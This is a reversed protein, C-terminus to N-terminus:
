LTFKWNLILILTLVVQAILALALGRGFWKTIEFNEDALNSNLNDSPDEVNDIFMYVTKDAKQKSNNVLWNLKALSPYSFHKNRVSMLLSYFSLLLAVLVISFLWIGYPVKHFDGSRFAALVGFEVGIFGLLTSARKM